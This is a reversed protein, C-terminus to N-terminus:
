GTEPNRLSFHCFLISERNGPTSIEGTPPASFLSASPLSSDSVIQLRETGNERREGREKFRGQLPARRTGRLMEHFTVSGRGCENACRSRGANPLRLFRGSFQRGGHTREIANCPSHLARLPFPPPPPPSLFLPHPPKWLYRKCLKSIKTGERPKGRGAFEINLAGRIIHCRQPNTFTNYLGFTM